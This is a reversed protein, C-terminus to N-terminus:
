SSTANACVTVELCSTASKSAAELRQATTAQGSEDAPFFFEFQQQPAPRSGLGAFALHHQREPSAPTPLDRSV